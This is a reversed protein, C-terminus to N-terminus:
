LLTESGKALQSNFPTIFHPKKSNDLCAKWLRYNRFSISVALTMKKKSFNLVQHLNWFNPLLELFFTRNRLYSCKFQKCYIRGIIFLIRLFYEDATLTNFFLRLIESVVLIKWGFKVWLSYFIHYLHQWAYKLQTQPETVHQSDFSTRSRKKRFM